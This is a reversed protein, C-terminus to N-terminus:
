ARELLTSSGAAPSILARSIQVPHPYKRFLWDFKEQENM